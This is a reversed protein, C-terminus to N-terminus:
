LEVATTPSVRGNETLGVYVTRGGLEGTVGVDVVIRFLGVLVDSGVTAVCGVEVGLVGSGV